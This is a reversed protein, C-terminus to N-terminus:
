KITSRVFERVETESSDPDFGSVAVCRIVAANPQLQQIKEITDAFRSGCHTTMVYNEISERRQSSANTKLNWLLYDLLDLKKQETHIRKLLLHRYEDLLRLQDKQRESSQCTEFQKILEKGCGADALCERVQKESMAIM